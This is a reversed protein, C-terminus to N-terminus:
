PADVGADPDAVRVEAACKKVLDCSVMATVCDELRADRVANAISCDALQTQDIGDLDCHEDHLQQMRSCIRARWQRDPDGMRPGHGCDDYCVDPPPKSGCGLLAVLVAIRVAKASGSRSM